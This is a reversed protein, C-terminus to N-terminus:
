ETPVPDSGTNAPGTVASYVAQPIELTLSGETQEKQGLINKGLWILMPVNGKEAQIYQLRRLSVKGNSSFAEFFESWGVGYKEKIKTQLTEDDVGIIHAAEARTCHISALKELQVFDKETLDKKNYLAM